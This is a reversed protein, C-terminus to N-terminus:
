KYKSLFLKPLKNEITDFITENKIFNKKLRVRFKKSNDKANELTIEEVMDIKKTLRSIHMGDLIFTM